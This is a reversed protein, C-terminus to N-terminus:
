FYTAFFAAMVPGHGRILDVRRDIFGQSLDGM